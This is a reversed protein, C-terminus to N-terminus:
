SHRGDISFYKAGKAQSCMFHQIVKQWARKVSLLPSLSSVSASYGNLSSFQLTTVNRIFIVEIIVEVCKTFVLIVILFLFDMTWVIRYETCCHLMNKAPLLFVNKYPWVRSISLETFLWIAEIGGSNQCWCGKIGPQFRYKNPSPQGNLCM